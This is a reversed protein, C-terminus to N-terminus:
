LGPGGVVAQVSSVGRGGMAVMWANQLVTLRDTIAELQWVNSMDAVTMGNLAQWDDRPLLLHVLAHQMTTGILARIAVRRTAAPRVCRIGGMSRREDLETDIFLVADASTDGVLM